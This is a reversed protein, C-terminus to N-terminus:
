SDKCLLSKLFVDKGATGAKLPACGTGPSSGPVVFTERFHEAFELHLDSAYQIKM